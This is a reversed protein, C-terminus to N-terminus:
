IVKLKVWGTVKVNSKWPWIKFYSYKLFPHDSQCPVFPIHISLINSESYRYNLALFVYSWHTLLPTVDKQVLGDIHSQGMGSRSRPNELDFNPFRQTEPISPESENPNMFIFTTILPMHLLSYIYIKELLWATDLVVKYIQNGNDM